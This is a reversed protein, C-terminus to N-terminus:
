KNGLMLKNIKNYQENAMEDFLNVRQMRNFEAEELQKNKLEEQQKEQESMSYSIQERENKYQGISNPRDITVTNPDILKSDTTYADKYDTFDISNSDGENKSFSNIDDLGLESFGLDGSIVAQPEDIKMIQKNYHNTKRSKEFAENFTNSSVNTGININEDNIDQELNSYGKDYPTNVKNEEYVKNFKNLNFNKGSM